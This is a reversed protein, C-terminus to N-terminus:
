IRAEVADTIEERLSEFPVTALAPDFFGMVIMRQAESRSLGRAQMYFLQEDDVDGSTSAHGGKLVDNTDIMLGPISDNRAQPNLHLAHEELRTSTAKSEHEIKIMGDFVSYGQENVVTKFQMFSDCNFGVHRLWPATLLHQNGGAFTAGLWNVHSGNGVLRTEAEIHQLRGGLAISTWKLGADRDLLALQGGIHTVDDAWRQISIFGLNANPGVILESIPGAFGGPQQSIFQEVLTVAAGAELVVLTRPMVAAADSLSYTVQLPETIVTNKPVYLFAGGQWYAARLASYRHELPKVATDITRRIVDEHATLAEEFTMFSAGAAAAAAAGVLEVQAPRASALVQALDLGSLDTRRWDPAPMGALADWAEARKAVLWEPERRGQAAAILAERQTDHFTMTTM